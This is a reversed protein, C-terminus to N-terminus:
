DQINMPPSISFSFSWYKPWRICLVSESSFVRISPFILRLLLFPHCLILHNSPMVSKIFMLKFLSWSNTITLSAQRAVTWPTAFLHVCFLLQVSSLLVLSCVSLHIFVSSPILLLIGLASSHILSRSSLITSDSGCFLIYFFLIFLISSLRLSRQSLMLHVLM